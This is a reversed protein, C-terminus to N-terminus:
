KFVYVGFSLLKWLLRRPLSVCIIKWLLSFRLIPILQFKPLLIKKKKMDEAENWLVSTTLIVSYENFDVSYNQIWVTFFTRYIKWFKGTLLEALFNGCFYCYVSFFILNFHMFFHMIPSNNILKIIPRHLSSFRCGDWSPLGTQWILVRYKKCNTTFMYLLFTYFSYNKM